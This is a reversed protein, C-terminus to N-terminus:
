LPQAGRQSIWGFLTKIANRVRGPNRREPPLDHIEARGAPTASVLLCLCPREGPQMEPNGGTREGPCPTKPEPYRQQCKHSRLLSSITHSLSSLASSTQLKCHLLGLVLAFLKSTEQTQKFIWMFKTKQEMICNNTKYFHWYRESFRQAIHLDSCIQPVALSGYVFAMVWFEGAGLLWIVVWCCITTGMALNHMLITWPCLLSPQKRCCSLSSSKVAGGM